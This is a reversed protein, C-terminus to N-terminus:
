VGRDGLHLIVFKKKLPCFRLAKWPVWLKKVTNLFLVFCFFLFSSGRLAGGM